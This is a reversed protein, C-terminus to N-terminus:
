VQLLDIFYEAKMKRYIKNEAYDLKCIKNDTTAKTRVKFM